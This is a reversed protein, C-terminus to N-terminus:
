ISVFYSTIKNLCKNDTIDWNLLFFDLDVGFKVDADKVVLVLEYVLESAPSQVFLLFTCYHVFLCKHPRGRVCVAARRM